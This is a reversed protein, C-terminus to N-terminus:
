QIEILAVGCSFGVGASVILVRQGARLRGSRRLEQLGVWGDTTGLHGVTQGIEWGNNQGLDAFTAEYTATRIKSGVFPTFVWDVTGNWAPDALLGCRLRKLAANLPVTFGEQGYLGLFTKKSRRIDYEAQWSEPGEATVVEDRHLEELEPAGDIALHLIKAFGDNASVVLAAAADGYVLGYDSRWRDFGSDEFRDAGLLLLNSAAQMKCIPALAVLSQLLGNCGQQVALAPIRSNLGLQRQVWSAPSWFRPQGHRHISAYILAGVAAPVLNSEAMAGRAATLAAEYPPRSPSRAISTYGDVAATEAAYRGSAVVDDVPVKESGVETSLGALFLGTM